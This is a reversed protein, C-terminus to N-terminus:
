RYISLYVYRKGLHVYTIQQKTRYLTALPLLALLHLLKIPLSILLSHNWSCKSSHTFYTQTFQLSIKILVRNSQLVSNFLPFFSFNIVSYFGTKVPKYKRRNTVGNCCRCSVKM